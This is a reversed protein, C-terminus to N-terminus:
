WVKGALEGRRHIGLKEYVVVVLDNVRGPSIEMRKSIDKYSYGNRISSSLFFERFSLNDAIREGTLHNHFRICNRFVQPTLERVKALVAPSLEALLRELSSHPGTSECLFPLVFGNSVASGAAERFWKAMGPIDGKDRCINACLIKLPIDNAAVTSSAPKIRMLLMAAAYAAQLEGRSKAALICLYGAQHRWAVPIDKLDFNELWEVKQVPIKLMLFIWMRVIEAGLKAHRSATYREPYLRLDELIRDFLEQDGCLVSGLLCCEAVQLFYRDNHPMSDYFARTGLSEGRAMGMEFEAIRKKPGQLKGVLIDLDARNYDIYYSVSGLMPLIEKAESVSM